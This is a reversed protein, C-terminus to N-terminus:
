IGMLHSTLLERIRDELFEARERFVEGGFFKFLCKDPFSIPLFINFLHQVVVVQVTVGLSGDATVSELHAGTGVEANEIFKADVVHKGAREGYAGVTDRCCSFCEEHGSFPVNAAHDAPIGGHTLFSNIGEM